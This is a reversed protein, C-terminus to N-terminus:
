LHALSVITISCICYILLLVFSPSLPSPPPPPQYMPQKTLSEYQFRISVVNLTVIPSLNRIFALQNYMVVWQLDRGGFSPLICCGSTQPNKRTDEFSCMSQFVWCFQSYLGFRVLFYAFCFQLKHRVVCWKLVCFLLLKPLGIQYLFFTGFLPSSKFNFSLKFSSLVRGNNAFIIIIFFCVTKKPNWQTM